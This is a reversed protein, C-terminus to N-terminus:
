RKELEQMERKVDKAIIRSAARLAVYSWSAIGIIGIIVTWNYSDM